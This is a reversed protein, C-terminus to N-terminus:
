RHKIYNRHQDFDVLQPPRVADTGERKLVNIVTILIIKFDLLFSIHDVYELDYAFREEWMLFGRGKIQALGTVGPFVDHRRIEQDTYYPLYRVLLPRPGVFSMDGKLINILQPLEDISLKRIINGTKTVRERDRLLRGESDHTKQCMTRLKCTKFEECNKGIRTQRFLVPGESDIKMVM